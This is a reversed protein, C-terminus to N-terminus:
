NSFKFIQPNSFAPIGAPLFRYDEHEFVLYSKAYYNEFKCMKLNEFQSASV